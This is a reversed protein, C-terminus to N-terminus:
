TGRSRRRSPRESPRSGTKPRDVPGEAPEERPLPPPLKGRPKSAISAPVVPATPEADPPELLWNMDVEITKRRQSGTSLPPPQKAAPAPPPESRLLWSTDVDITNRRVPGAGNSKPGSPKKSM